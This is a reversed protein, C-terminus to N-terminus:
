LDETAEDLISQMRGPRDGFWAAVTYLRRPAYVSTRYTQLVGMAVCRAVAFTEGYPEKIHNM